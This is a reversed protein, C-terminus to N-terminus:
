SALKADQKSGQHPLASGTVNDPRQVSSAQRKSQRQRQYKEAWANYEEALLIYRDYMQELVELPAGAQEARALDHWQQQMRQEANALTM